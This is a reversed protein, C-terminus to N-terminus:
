RVPIASSFFQREMEVKEDLWRTLLARVTAENPQFRSPSPTAKIWEPRIWETYYGQAALLYSGPEPGVPFRVTMRHTPRTELYEGDPLALAELAEPELSGDPGVVEAIPVRRLEPTRSDAALAVQDIRWADALFSLRVRTVRDTAAPVTVAVEEWAIPGTDPIRSLPEFVNEEEVEIRLGLYERAWLALEVTEDIQEFNEMMWDVTKIGGPALM